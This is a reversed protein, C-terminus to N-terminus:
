LEALKAIVYCVAMMLLPFVPSMKSTTAGSITTMTVTGPETITSNGGQRGFTVTITGLIPDIHPQTTKLKFSFRDMEGTEYERVKIQVVASQCYMSELEDQPYEIIYRGMPLYPETRPLFTYTSNTSTNWVGVQLQFQRFQENCLHCEITYRVYQRWYWQSITIDTERPWCSFATYHFVM